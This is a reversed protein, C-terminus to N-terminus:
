GIGGDENGLTCSSFERILAKFENDVICEHRNCNPCDVAHYLTATFIPAALAIFDSPKLQKNQKEPDAVEYGAHAYRSLIFYGSHYYGLLGSKEAREYYNWNPVEKENILRLFNQLLTKKDEISQSNEPSANPGNNAREFQHITGSLEDCILEVANTPSQKAVASNFIREM